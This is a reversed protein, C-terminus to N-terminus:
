AVCLATQSLWKTDFHTLYQALPSQIVIVLLSMLPLRTVKALTVLLEERYEMCASGMRCSLVGWGAANDGGPGKCWESCACVSERFVPSDRRVVATWGM